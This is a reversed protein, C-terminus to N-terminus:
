VVFCKACFIKSFDRYVIMKHFNLLASIEGIYLVRLDQGYTYKVIFNIEHTCNEVNVVVVNKAVFTKM